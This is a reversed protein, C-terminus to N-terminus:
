ANQGRPAFLARSVDAELERKLLSFLMAFSCNFEVDGARLIVGGDIDATDKALVLTQLREPAVKGSLKKKAIELVAAGVRDRDKKNLLLELLEAVDSEETEDGYLALNKTETETLELVSSALLGALLEAYPEDQLSRVWEAASVFVGDILDSRQELLLNRKKMAAASRARAVMDEGRREADSSLRERIGDARAAYDATIERCDAEAQALIAAARERADALIKETIKELGNVSM